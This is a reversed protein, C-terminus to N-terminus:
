VPRSNWRNYNYNKARLVVSQPLSKPRREIADAFTVGKPGLLVQETRWPHQTVGHVGLGPTLKQHLLDAGDIIVFAFIAKVLQDQGFTLLLENLRQHALM